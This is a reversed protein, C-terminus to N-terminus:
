DCHGCVQPPGQCCPEHGEAVCEALRLAHRGPDQGATEHDQHDHSVAETIRLPLPQRYKSKWRCVGGWTCAAKTPSDRAIHIPVTNKYMTPRSRRQRGAAPIAVSIRAPPPSGRSGRIRRCRHAPLLDAAYDPQYGSIRSRLQRKLLHSATNVSQFFPSFHTHCLVHIASLSILRKPFFAYSGSSIVVSRM